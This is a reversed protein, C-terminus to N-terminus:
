PVTHGVELEFGCFSYRLGLRPNPLLVVPFVPFVPFFSSLAKHFIDESYRGVLKKGM